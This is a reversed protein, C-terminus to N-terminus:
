SVHNTTIQFRASVSIRSSRPSAFSAMDVPTNQQNLDVRVTPASSASRLRAAFGKGERGPATLEFVGAVFSFAWQGGGTTRATGDDFNSLLLPDRRDTPDRVLEVDDFQLDLPGEISPPVPFPRPAPPPVTTGVAAPEAWQEIPTGGAASYVLGVPVDLRTHLERGFYYAVASFAPVSEPTVPQWNGGAPADLPQPASKNPVTFLRMRPYKAAPIDKEATTTGSLPYVMNSQGSCLWVEGILVDTVLLTMAGTTVAITFPGGAKMAPLMVKWTRDAGATANRVVGLLSVTIKEGPEAWGWIPIDREQQLVVHDSILPHLSPRAYAPAVASLSAVGSAIVWVLLRSPTM